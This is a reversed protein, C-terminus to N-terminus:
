NKSVVFDVRRNQALGEATDNSAVPDSEGYGRSTLRGASIGESVLYDLVAKARRESLEQNNAESDQSDTHGEIRVNIDSNKRLTLVVTDLKSMASGSLEHSATAFNLGTLNVLTHCGMKNVAKGKATNPCKDSGDTVGDGDSDKEGGNRDVMAGQPTGPCKDMHDSVKDKDSDLACRSADISVCRATGACQDLYDAVGRWAM